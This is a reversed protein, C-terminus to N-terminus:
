SDRLEPARLRWRKDRVAREDFKVSQKYGEVCNNAEQGKNINKNNGYM